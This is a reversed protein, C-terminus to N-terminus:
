DGSSEKAKVMSVLLYIAYEAMQGVSSYPHKTWFLVEDVTAVGERIKRACEYHRKVMEDSYLDVGDGGM